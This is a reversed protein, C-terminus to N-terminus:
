SGKDTLVKRNKVDFKNGCVVIPLGKASETTFRKSKM